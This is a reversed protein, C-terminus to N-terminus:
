QTDGENSFNYNYHEIDKGLKKKYRKETEKKIIPELKKTLEEFKDSSMFGYDEWDNYFFCNLGDSTRSSINKIGHAMYVKEEIPESSSGIHMFCGETCHTYIPSTRGEKDNLIAIGKKDFGNENCIRIFYHKLWGTRRLIHGKMLRIIIEYGKIGTEKPKMKM